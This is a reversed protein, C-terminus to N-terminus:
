AFAILHCSADVADFEAAFCFTQIKWRVRALEAFADVVVDRFFRPLLPELQTRASDTRVVGCVFSPTSHPRDVIGSGQQTLWQQHWGRRQQTLVSLMDMRQVRGESGSCSLLLRPGFRDNRVSRRGTVLELQTFGALFGFMVFPEHFTTDIDYPENM